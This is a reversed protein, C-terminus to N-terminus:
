FQFNDKQNASIASEVVAMWQQNIKSNKGFEEFEDLWVQAHFKQLFISWEKKVEKARLIRDLFEEIIAFAAQNPEALLDDLATECKYLAEAHLSKLCSLIETASPSASLQLSTEDPNLDDLHRRIRHQILGRYSLEFEALTQFGLKLRPLNEPIIEALASIFEAKRAENLNGLKGEEILIDAVSAKIRNIEQKLVEDLLLFHQSLHARVENLYEYYANPYGGLRNRREKIEEETPIGNDERCIAIAANVQEKFELNELNRNAKLYQLLEELASTLEGWLQESLEIFLPFYDQNQTLGQLAGKAKDLELTTDKQLQWLNEQCSSVYQRDLKTINEVLYNM